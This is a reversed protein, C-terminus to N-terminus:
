SAGMGDALRKRQEAEKAANMAAILEATTPRAMFEPDAPRPHERHQNQGMEYARALDAETIPDPEPHNRKIADRRTM